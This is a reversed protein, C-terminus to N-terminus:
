AAKQENEDQGFSAPRCNESRARCTVLNFVIKFFYKFQSFIPRRLQEKLFQLENQRAEDGTKFPQSYVPSLLGPKCAYRLVLHEDSFLNWRTTEKLLPRPGVLNMERKAINLIQPLEDICMQRLFKGCKSVKSGNMTRIKFISIDKGFKGMRIQKILFSM